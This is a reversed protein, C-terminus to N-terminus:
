RVILGLTCRFMCYLECGVIVDELIFLRDEYGM